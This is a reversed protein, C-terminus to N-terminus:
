HWQCLELPIYKVSLSQAISFLESTNAAPRIGIVLYDIKSSDEILLQYFPTGSNPVEKVPRLDFHADFNLIGLRQGPKLAKLIGKGHGFAIDHGGGLLIPIFKQDLIDKVKLSLLTQAAELAQSKCFIDGIDWIRAEKNHWALKALQQRIAFPGTAAGVRGQNRRVGEECAYGLLAFNEKSNNLKQNLLENEGLVQVAQYWYQIDLSASVKRGQWISPETAQYSVGLSDDKRKEM